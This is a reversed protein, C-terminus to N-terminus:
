VGPSTQEFYRDFAQHVIEPSIGMAGMARNYQEMESFHRQGDAAVVKLGMVAVDLKDNNSLTPALDL